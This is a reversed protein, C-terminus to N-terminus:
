GADKVYEVYHYMIIPIKVLKNDEKKVLGVPADFAGKEYYPAVINDLANLKKQLVVTKQQEAYFFISIVIFCILSMIFLLKYKYKKLKIRM